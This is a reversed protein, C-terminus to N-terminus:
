RSRMRTGFGAALLVFGAATAIVDISRPVGADIFAKALANALLILSGCLMLLRWLPWPGRWSPLRKSESNASPKEPQV